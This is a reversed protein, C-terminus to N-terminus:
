ARQPPMPIGPTTRCSFRTQGSVPIAQSFDHKLTTAEPAFPRVASGPAPVLGGVNVVDFGPIVMGKGIQLSEAARVVEFFGASFGPRFLEFDFGQAPQGFLLLGAGDVAGWGGCLM